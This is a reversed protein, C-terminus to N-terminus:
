LLFRGDVTMGVHGTVPFGAWWSMVDMWLEDEVDVM